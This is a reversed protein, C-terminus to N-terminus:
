HVGSSDPLDDRGRRMTLWILGALVLLAAGFAIGFLWLTRYLISERDMRAEMVDPTRDDAYAIPRGEIRQQLRQEWTIINGRSAPRSEGADLYRSNQFRIRAPLHLRYAIIEDGRWAPLARGPPPTKPLTERFTVQDGETVLEYRTGAFPAAKPLSRIDPVTIHIGLFRRGRRTWSSIRGVKSYPSEYLARAQDRLTDARATLDPDLTMGKLADLAPVSANVILTASGDMALTLDEEYEYEPGLPSRGNCAAAALALAVVLVVARSVSSTM